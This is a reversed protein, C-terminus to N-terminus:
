QRWMVTIVADSDRDVVVQAALYKSLRNVVQCGVDRALDRRSRKDFSIRDAGHSSERHGYSLLWEIVLPPVARQQM